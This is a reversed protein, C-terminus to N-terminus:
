GITNVLEGHGADIIITQIQEISANVDIVENKVYGFMAILCIVCLMAIQPTIRKLFKM